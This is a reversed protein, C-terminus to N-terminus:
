VNRATLTRRTKPGNFRVSVSVSEHTLTLEVMWCTGPFFRVRIWAHYSTLLRPQLLDGGKRGGGEARGRVEDENVGRRLFRRERPSEGM